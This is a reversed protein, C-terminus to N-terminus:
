LRHPLQREFEKQEREYQLTEVRTAISDDVYDLFTKFGALRQGLDRAQDHRGEMSAQVILDKMESIKDFSFKEIAEFYNTKKFTQWMEGDAVTLEDVDTRKM